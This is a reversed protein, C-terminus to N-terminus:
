NKILEFDILHKIRVNKANEYFFGNTTKIRNNAISSPLYSCPTFANEYVGVKQLIDIVMEHCTIMYDYQKHEPIPSVIFKPLYKRSYTKISWENAVKELPPQRRGDPAFLSFKNVNSPTKLTAFRLWRLNLNEVAIDLEEYRQSVIEEIKQFSIEKNIKLHGISRARRNIRIWNLLPVRLIQHSYPPRYNAAELIYPEGSSQEIFVLGVHTWVSAYFVSSFISRVDNYSLCLIDGTKLKSIDLEDPLHNKCGKLRNSGQNLFRISLPNKNVQHECIPFDDVMGYRSSCILIGVVICIFVYVVSQNYIDIINNKRDSM